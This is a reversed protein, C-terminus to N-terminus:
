QNDEFWTNTGAMAPQLQSAASLNFNNYQSQTYNNGARGEDFLRNTASQNIDGVAGKIGIFDRVKDILGGLLGAVWQITEGLGGLLGAVWNIFSAIQNFVWSAVRFLLSIAGVIAGGVVTAIVKLLPIIAEIFPQLNQWAQQLEAIGEM